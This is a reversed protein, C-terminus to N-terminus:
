NLKTVQLFDVDVPTERGFVGVLVKIRGKDADVEQVKGEFDTFPGDIIRVRDGPKVNIKYRATEGQIRNFIIEM